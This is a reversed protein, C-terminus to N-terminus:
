IRDGAKGSTTDSPSPRSSSARGPRRSKLGTGSVLEDSEVLIQDVAAEDVGLLRCCIRVFSEEHDGPMNNQLVNNLEAILLWPFDGLWAEHGGAPRLIGHAVADKEAERMFPQVLKCWEAVFIYPRELLWQITADRTLTRMIVRAGIAPLCEIRKAKSLIAGTLRGIAEIKAEAAAAVVDDIAKFHNYFSGYAIDAEETIHSM